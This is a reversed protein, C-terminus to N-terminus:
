FAYTVGGGGLFFLRVKSVVKKRPCADPTSWVFTHRCATAEEFRPGMEGESCKLIIEASMNCSNGRDDQYLRGHSYELSIDGDETIVPRKYMIGLNHAEVM